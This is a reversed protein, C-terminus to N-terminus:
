GTTAAVFTFSGSPVAYVAYGNEMRLFGARQSSTTPRRDKAPVWM